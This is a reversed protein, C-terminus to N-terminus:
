LCCILKWFNPPSFPPLSQSYFPRAAIPLYLSQSWCSLFSSRPNSNAPYSWARVQQAPAGPSKDAKRGKGAAARLLCHWFIAQPNGLPARGEGARSLRHFPRSRSDRASTGNELGAWSRIEKWVASFEVPLYAAEM